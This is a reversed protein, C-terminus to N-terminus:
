DATNETISASVSNRKILRLPFNIKWHGLIPPQTVNIEAIFVQEETLGTDITFVQEGWGEKGDKHWYMGTIGGPLKDEQWYKPSTGFPNEEDPDRLSIWVKWPYYSATHTDDSVEKYDLDTYHVQVHLLGDIMGIGSLYVNETLPIEPSNQPDLVRMAEPIVLRSDGVRDMTNCFGDDTYGANAIANEPVPMSVARNGYEKLLPLLDVTSYQHPTIFDTYATIQGDTPVSVTDFHISNVFYAKKEKEVYYAPSITGSASCNRFLQADIDINAETHGNIRNGELDQLSFTVTVDSGEALASLIELRVGQDECTLNVPMLTEALDPWYKYLLGNVTENTAALATAMLVIMLAAAAIVSFSLKKKVIKEEQGHVPLSSITEHIQETLERPPTEYMRRLDSQTFRKM